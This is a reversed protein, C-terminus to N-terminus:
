NSKIRRSDIPGNKTEPTTCLASSPGLAAVANDDSWFAEAAHQKRESSLQKWLQSPRPIDPVDAAM